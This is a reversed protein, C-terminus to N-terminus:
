QNVSRLYLGIFPYKIVKWNIKIAQMLAINCINIIYQKDLYDQGM